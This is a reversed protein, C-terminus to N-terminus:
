KINTGSHVWEKNYYFNEDKLFKVITKNNKEAIVWLFLSKIILYKNSANLLKGQKFM